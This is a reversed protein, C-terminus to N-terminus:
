SKGNKCRMPPAIDERRYNPRHNRAMKKATHYLRELAPDQEDMRSILDIIKSQYDMSM